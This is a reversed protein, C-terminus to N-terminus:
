DDNQSKHLTFFFTTGLDVKSDAWIHGGHKLLLRQVLALGVGTGEFEEETHLRQFVGFLKDAYRMDFGAGNDKIAYIIEAGEERSSIEIIAKDKYKTYKIANSVLNLWVQRIAMKDGIAPLLEGIHFEIVRDPQENKLEVAVETVLRKMQINIKVLERRGIRSFTLLDDILNGMKKAHHVINNMLRDAETDLHEALYEKLMKTYGNVARLPGRLDHSISYSFAELEKNVELTQEESVARERLAATLEQARKEKEENQFALEKNAIILESALKEKKNNEVALRQNAIILESARKEKEENQFILEANAVILEAARKEKETNQFSLEQNVIVLEAARKEKEDNQFSLEKNAIHLEAARKEKETNQFALEKNAIILEAAKKGREGTQFSLEKQAAILEEANIGNNM